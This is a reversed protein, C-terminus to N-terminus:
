GKVHSWSSPYDEGMECIPFSLGWVLVFFGSRFGLNLARHGQCQSSVWMPSFTLLILNSFCAMDVLVPMTLKPATAARFNSHFTYSCENSPSTMLNASEGIPQNGVRQPNLPQSGHPSCPPPPLGSPSKWSGSDLLPEGPITLQKTGVRSALQQGSSRATLGAGPALSHLHENWGGLPCEM